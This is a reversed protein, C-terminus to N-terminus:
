RCGETRYFDKLSASLLIIPKETSDGWEEAEKRYAIPARTEPMSEMAAWGMGKDLPHSPVSRARAEVKDLCM